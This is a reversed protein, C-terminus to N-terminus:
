FFFFSSNGFIYSDSQGNTRRGFFNVELMQKKNKNQIVDGPQFYFSFKIKMQGSLREHSCNNKIFIYLKVLNYTILSL